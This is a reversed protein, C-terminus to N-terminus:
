EVAAEGVDVPMMLVVTTIINAAPSVPKLHTLAARIRLVDPKAQNVIPYRDKLVEVVAQRLNKALKEMEEPKMEREAKARDIRVEVPDIMFGKYKKWSIGPREWWSIGEETPDAKLRQYDTLFGSPAVQPAACGSTLLLLFMSLTGWFIYPNTTQKQSPEHM